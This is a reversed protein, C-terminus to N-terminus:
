ALCARKCSPSFAIQVYKTVAVKVLRQGYRAVVERNAKRCRSDDMMTTLSILTHPPHRPALLRHLAHFAAILRPFSDFLRQDRSEQIIMCGIWLHMLSVRHVSVDLYGSSFFSFEIEKTAALSFSVAWVTSSRSAPNHPWRYPTVFRDALLIRHFARVVSPSLGTNSLQYSEQHTGSYTWDRPVQVSDPLGM